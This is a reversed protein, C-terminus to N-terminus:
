PAVHQLSQQATDIATRLNDCHILFPRRSFPLGSRLADRLGQDPDLPAVSEVRVNDFQLDYTGFVQFFGEELPVTFSTLKVAGGNGIITAKWYPKSEKNHKPRTMAEKVDVIYGQPRQPSCYPLRSDNLKINLHAAHWLYIPLKEEPVTGLDFPTAMQALPMDAFPNPEAEIQALLAATDPHQAPLEVDAFGILSGWRSGQADLKGVEVDIKLSAGLDVVYRMCKNLIANAVELFDGRVVSDIEDHVQLTLKIVDELRYRVLIHDIWVMAADIIQAAFSQIVHNMLARVAATRYDRRNSCLDAASRAFGWLSETFGRQLGWAVANWHYLRLGPINEFLTALAREVGKVDLGLAVVQPNSALGAASSGYALALVLIKAANREIDNIVDYAKGLAAAAITKYIDRGAKYSDLLTSDGLLDIFFAMCRPEIQSLDAVVFYWDRREKNPGVHPAYGQKRREGLIARGAASKTWRRGKRTSLWEVVAIFGNRIEKGDGKGPMNQSNPDVASKRGSSTGSENYTSHVEGYPTGNATVTRVAYKRMDYTSVLKALKARKQILTIVAVLAQQDRLPFSRPREWEYLAHGLLEQIAAKGVAPEGTKTRDRVPLRLHTYFLYRVQNDTGWGVARGLLQALTRDIEVIEASYRAMMTKYHALDVLFGRREIKGLVGLLPMTIRSYMPWMFSGELRPSFHEALQSTLDADQGVYVRADNLSVLGFDHPKSPDQGSRRIVDEYSIIEKPDIDLEHTALAKLGKLYFFKNPDGGTWKAWRQAHEAELQWQLFHAATYTDFAIPMPAWGAYALASVDIKGNHSGLRAVQMRGNLAERVRDHPLQAVETYKHALPVYWSVGPVGVSLGVLRVQPLHINVDPGAGSFETDFSVITHTERAQDIADTLEALGGTDVVLRYDGRSKLPALTAIGPTKSGHTLDDAAFMDGTLSDPKNKGKAM